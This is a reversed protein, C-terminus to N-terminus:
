AIIRNVDKGVWRCNYCRYDKTKVRKAIDMSNCHPCVNRERIRGYFRHKNKIKREIQRIGINGIM